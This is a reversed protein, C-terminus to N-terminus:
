TRTSARRAPPRSNKLDGVGAEAGMHEFLLAMDGQEIGADVLRDWQEAGVLLAMADDLDGRALMRQAKMPWRAPGPVTYAQGNYTFEVPLRDAEAAAAEAAANLDFRARGNHDPRPPTM